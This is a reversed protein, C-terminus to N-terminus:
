RERGSLPHFTDVEPPSELATAIAECRTNRRVFSQPPDSATQCAAATVNTTVDSESNANNSALLEGTTPAARTATAQPTHTANTPETAFSTV